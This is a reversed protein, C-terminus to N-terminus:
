KILSFLWFGWAPIIFFTMTYVVAPQLKNM